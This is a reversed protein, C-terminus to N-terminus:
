GDSLSGPHEAFNQVAIWLDRDPDWRISLGGATVAKNLINARHDPSHMWMRVLLHPTAGDSLKAINEEVYASDCRDLLRGLHSHEYLDKNVLYSAWHSSFGSVCGNWHVRSLGHRHRRQNVMRFVQSTFDAEAQTMAASDVLRLRPSLVPRTPAPASPTGPQACVVLAAGVALVATLWGTM